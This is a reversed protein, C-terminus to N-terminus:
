INITGIRETEKETRKRKLKYGENAKFLKNNAHKKHSKYRSFIM